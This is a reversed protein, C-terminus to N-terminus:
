WCVPVFLSGIAVDSNDVEVIFPSDQSPLRFIPASILCQKLEEFLKRPKPHSDFGLPAAVTSFKPIFQWFFNPFGLFHIVLQLSTLQPWYMVVKIRAPDMQLSGKPIDEMQWGAMSQHSKCTWVKCTWIPFFAHTSCHNLPSLWSLCLTTPIKNLGWYYLLDGDKKGVFLFMVGAPLTSPLIIRLLLSNQIYEEMSKQESGSHGFLRAWPLSAGLLM